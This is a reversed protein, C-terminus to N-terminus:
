PALGSCCRFGVTKRREDRMLWCNENTGLIGDAYSNGRTKCADSADAYGSCRDVWEAVNGSMNMLGAIAGTCSAPENVPLAQPNGDVHRYESLNCRWAQYEAGYPFRGEGGYAELWEGGTEITTPEASRPGCLRKGAWRCYADADCWDVEVAPHADSAGSAPSLETKFACEPGFSPSTASALFTAYDARTVETADICFSGADLLTPGPLGTQCDGGEATCRGSHCTGLDSAACSHGCAGCNPDVDVLTECGDSVV